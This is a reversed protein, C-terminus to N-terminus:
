LLGCLKALNRAMRKDRRTPKLELAEKWYREFAGSPIPDVTWVRPRDPRYPDDFKRPDLPPPEWNSVKSSKAKPM